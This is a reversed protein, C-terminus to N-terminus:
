APSAPTCIDYKNYSPDAYGSSVGGTLGGGRGRLGEFSCGKKRSAKEDSEAEEKM